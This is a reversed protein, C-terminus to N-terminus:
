ITSNWNLKFSVGIGRNNKGLLPGDPIVAVLSRALACIFVLLSLLNKILEIRHNYTGIIPNLPLITQQLVKRIM